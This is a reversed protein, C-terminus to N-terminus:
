FVTWDQGLFLAREAKRRRTLGELEQGGAKNWRPFQDAAGQFDGQNLLKLLTSQFLSDAGLNFCFSVLASFQNSNISVEVAETVAEEFEALRHKWRNAIESIMQPAVNMGRIVMIPKYDASMKAGAMMFEDFMGDLEAACEGVKERLRDQINLKAPTDSVPEATVEVTQKSTLIEKLLNDLKIQETENLELGVMKM